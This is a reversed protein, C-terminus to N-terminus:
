KEDPKIKANKEDYEQSSILGENRMKQIDTLQAEDKEHSVHRKSNYFAAANTENNRLRATRYGSAFLAAIIIMLFIGTCIGQPLSKYGRGQQIINGAVFAAALVLLNLILARIFRGWDQNIYLQSAGPILVNILGALLPNKNKKYMIKEKRLLSSIALRGRKM